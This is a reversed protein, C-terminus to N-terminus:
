AVKRRLALGAVGLALLALATPEPLVAVDAGSAFTSDAYVAFDTDTFCSTDGLDAFTGGIVYSAWWNHNSLTAGTLEFITQDGVYVKLTSITKNNNGSRDIAIGFATKGETVAVSSVTGQTGGTIGTTSVTYVGNAIGITVSAANSLGATFVTGVTEGSVSAMNAVLAISGIPRPNAPGVAPTVQWNNTTDQVSTNADGQTTLKWDVTVAHMTAAFAALALTCLLTRM